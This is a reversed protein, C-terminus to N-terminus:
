LISTVFNHRGTSARKKKPNLEKQKFYPIIAVLSSIDSSVMERPARSSIQCSIPWTKILTVDSGSYNLKVGGIKKIKVIYSVQLAPPAPASSSRAFIIRVGSSAFISDACLALEATTKYYFRSINQIIDDKMNFLEVM